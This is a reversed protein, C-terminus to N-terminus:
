RPVPNQHVVVHGSNHYTALLHGCKGCMHNMNKFSAVFYPICGVCALCCLVAAWGHTSDGTIAETRTMERQGCLPCDVVQPFRQLAHLPVSNPYYNPQASYNPQAPPYAQPQPPYAHPQQPNFGHQMQANQQPTTYMQPSVNQMEIGSDNNAVSRSPQGDQETIPAAHAPHQQYSPPTAEEPAPNYTAKESM